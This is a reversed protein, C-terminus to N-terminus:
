NKRLNPHPPEVRNPGDEGESAARLDVTNCDGGPQGYNFIFRDASVGEKDVMHNIVANVHDWSLQERRTLHAIVM